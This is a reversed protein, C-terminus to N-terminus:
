NTKKPETNSRGGAESCHDLQRETVGFEGTMSMFLSNEDKKRLTMVEKFRRNPDPEKIDDEPRDEDCSLDLRIADSASYTLRKISCNFAENGIVVKKRLEISYVGFGACLEASVEGPVVYLGDRPRWKETKAKPSQQALTPASAGVLCVLAAASFIFHGRKRYNIGL